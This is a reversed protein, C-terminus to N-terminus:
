EPIECLGNLSSSRAPSCNFTGINGNVSTYACSYNENYPEGVDWQVTKSSDVVFPEGNEVYVFEGQAYSIGIWVWHM